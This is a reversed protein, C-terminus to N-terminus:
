DPTRLLYLAQRLADLKVSFVAIDEREQKTFKRNELDEKSCSLFLSSKMLDESSLKRGVWLLIMSLHIGGFISQLLEVSYIQFQNFNETYTLWRNVIEGPVFDVEQLRMEEINQCTNQPLTVWDDKLFRVLPEISEYQFEAIEEDDSLRYAADWQLDDEVFLEFSPNEEECFTSLLCFVLSERVDAHTPMANLDEALLQALPTPWHKFDSNLHTKLPQGQGNFIVGYDSRLPSVRIAFPRQSNKM